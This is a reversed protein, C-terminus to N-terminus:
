YMYCVYRCLGHNIHLFFVIRTMNMFCKPIYFSFSRSVNISSWKLIYSVQRGTTSPWIWFIFCSLSNIHCLWLMPVMETETFTSRWCWCVPFPHQQNLYCIRYNGKYSQPCSSYGPPITCLGLFLFIRFIKKFSNFGM